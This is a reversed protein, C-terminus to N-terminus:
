LLPTQLIQTWRQRIERGRWMNRQLVIDLLDLSTFQKNWFDNLYKKDVSDQSLLSFNYNRIFNIFMIYNHRLRKTDIKNEFWLKWLKMRIWLWYFLDFYNCITSILWFSRGAFMFYELGYGLISEDNSTDHTNLVFIKLLVWLTLNSQFNVKMARDLEHSVFFTRNNLAKDHNVIKWSFYSYCYRSDRRKPFLDVLASWQSLLGVFTTIVKRSFTTFSTPHM